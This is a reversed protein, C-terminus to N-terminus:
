LSPCKGDTCELVNKPDHGAGLARHQYHNWITMKRESRGVVKKVAWMTRDALWHALIIKILITGVFFETFNTLYNRM